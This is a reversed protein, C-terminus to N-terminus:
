PNDEVNIKLFYAITVNDNDIIDPNSHGKSIMKLINLETGKIQIEISNWESRTLNSQVLDM